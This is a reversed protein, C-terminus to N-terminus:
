GKDVKGESHAEKWSIIAQKLLHAITLIDADVMRMMDVVESPHIFYEPFDFLQHCMVQIEMGHWKIFDEWIGKVRMKEAIGEVHSYSPNFSEWKKCKPCWPEPREEYMPVRFLGVEHWCGGDIIEHVREDIDM